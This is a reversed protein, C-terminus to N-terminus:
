SQARELSQVSDFGGDTIHWYTLKVALEASFTLVDGSTLWRGLHVV